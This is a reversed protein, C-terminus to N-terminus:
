SSNLVRLTLNEWALRIFPLEVYSRISVFCEGCQNISTFEKLMDRQSKFDIRHLSCPNLTGDPRVVMFLRGASCNPIFGDKIFKLIGDLNSPSNIVVDFPEEKRKSKSFIEEALQIMSKEKLVFKREGTRLPTYISFSLEVGWRKAVETIRELETINANTIATNLVIDSYGMASLEPLTRDLKNFLGKLKRFEDHRKDPFDLSVSFQNVGAERLTTYNEKTLLWGNTVLITYPFYQNIKTAKVVEILDERLLPEGGSLQIVAPRYYRIMERYKEPPIRSENKIRGGLDCHVCNANCSLTVEFSIVLPKRSIYNKMAYCIVEPIFRIPVKRM